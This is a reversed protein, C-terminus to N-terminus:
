GLREGPIVRRGRLFEAAGMRKRGAAQVEALVVRGRGCQVAVDPKMRVITGPAAGRSRSDRGVRFRRADARWILLEDGGLRTRAVPWPDYARVMREIRAADASWDIVADAKSVPSTYTALSEDQPTEVLQGHRLKELAELLAAAGM